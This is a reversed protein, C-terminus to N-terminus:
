LRRDPLRESQEFSELASSQEKHSAEEPLQQDHKESYGEHAATCHAKGRRWRHGTFWARMIVTGAFRVVVM